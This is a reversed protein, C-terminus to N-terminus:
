NVQRQPSGPTISRAAAAKLRNLAELLPPFEEYFIVIVDGAAAAALAEQLAEEEKLVIRPPPSGKRTKLCGQRLLEATEGPPRGRLDRDERIFVLDFYRGAKEGAELIIDDNRDGPVGIVGLVRGTTQQRALRATVEFAKPNHGYDVLIHRGDVTFLNGRGPNHSLDPLFTRLGKRVLPVSLGQSLCAAAAAMANEVHHMAKGHFTVPIKATPLLPIIRQGDHWYLTNKTTFVARGGQKLHKQLSLSKVPGFYVVEGGIWPIIYSNAPESANLVVSGSKMVAEAVLSKVYILDRISELGDQGLHDRSINTIVACDALDYGLGRRMIGGRATELALAEVERDMLLARASDPGTTDGSMILEEGRYLGDTTALGVRLGQQSLIHAILRTTTTKGNTGTVSYLPVRSPRKAPFLSDVIKGAVDRALGKQPYHHMRIGPAANIEIVAGGAAQLPQSIDPTVLDVGAVDLGLLSVARCCLRATEDHVEETVDYAVGGTSLNANDRLFVVEGPPIVQNLALNQRKLVLKVADDIDIRTLPKDHGKGRLPNKNEKAVLQRLTSTGDGVVFPPKREAAAVMEGKVVLVRYQKGHIHKEVLVKSHHRRAVAFAQLIEEPSTIGLTVGNGHNGQLPKIVIPYGLQQGAAVAEKPSSAIKGRPVPIGWKTLLDKTLYKDGVLDVSLCSTEETLTAQVRKMYKGTGLQLFSVGKQMLMVPIGRQRAAHMIAQTSPGPSFRDKLDAARKVIRRVDAKHGALLKNLLKVGEQVLFRASQEEHYEFVIEVRGGPLRTTKGYNAPSGSLSQLELLVHEYIHGLMTGEQLREVFGGKKGRSCHHDKLGPLAALLRQHFDELGRSDKEEWGELDMEVRIVPHHSYINRGPYASVGAIEM